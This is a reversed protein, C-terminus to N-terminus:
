KLNKLYDNMDFKEFALEKKLYLPHHPHKGKSLKGRHVWKTKSPLITVIEKLCRRLYPRIEIIGGWAAWVTPNAYDRFIKGIHHINRAHIHEDIERSLDNPNTAREPYLNLMIWGDFKAKSVNRVSSLTRDLKEPVATSPNIGFCVLPSAGHEGLVFRPSFDDSVKEYLWNSAM